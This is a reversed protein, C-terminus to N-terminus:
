ATSELCSILGNELSLLVVMEIYLIVIHKKTTYVAYVAYAYFLICIRYLYIGNVQHILKWYITM